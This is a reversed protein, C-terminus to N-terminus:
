PNNSLSYVISSAVPKTDGSTPLCSRTMTKDINTRLFLVNANLIHPEGFLTLSSEEPIHSRQSQYVLVFTESLSEKEIKMSQRSSHPM